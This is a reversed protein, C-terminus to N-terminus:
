FPTAGTDLLNDVASKGWGNNINTKQVTAIKTWSSKKVWLSIQKEGKDNVWNSIDLEGTVEYMSDKEIAHGADLAINFYHKDVTVWEDNEKKKKDIRITAYEGAKSQKIDNVYGQL